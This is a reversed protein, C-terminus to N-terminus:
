SQNIPGERRERREGKTGRVDRGREDRRYQNRKKAGGRGERM